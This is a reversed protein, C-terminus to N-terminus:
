GIKKRAWAAAGRVGADDELQATVVKFSKKYPGLVRNQASKKVTELYLKPMAEVLGGGLVITDPALLQVVTAVGSGLLVASRRVIDEIAKDGAKISRALKSSTINSIDTGCLELLKPAKGRYAARAADAAIRLRSPLMM